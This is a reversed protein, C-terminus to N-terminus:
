RALYRLSLLMTREIHQCVAMEICNGRSLVGVAQLDRLTSWFAIDSSPLGEGSLYGRLPIRSIAIARRGVKDMEIHDDDCIFLTLEYCGDSVDGSKPVHVSCSCYFDAEINYYRELCYPSNLIIM